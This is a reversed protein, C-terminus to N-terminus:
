SERKGGLLPNEIHLARHKYLRGSNGDYNRQSAARVQLRQLGLNIVQLRLDGLQLGIHLTGVRSGRLGGRLSVSGIRGSGTRLARGLEGISLNHLM